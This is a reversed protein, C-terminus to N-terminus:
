LIDHSHLHHLLECTCLERAIHESRIFCFSKFLRKGQKWACFKIGSRQTIQGASLPAGVCAPSIVREKIHKAQVCLYHPAGTFSCWCVSPHYQRGAAVSIIWLDISFAVCRETRLRTRESWMIVVPLVLHLFPHLDSSEYAAWKLKIVPATRPKISTSEPSGRVPWTRDARQGSCVEVVHGARQGAGESGRRAGSLAPPWLKHGHSVTSWSCVSRSYHHYHWM